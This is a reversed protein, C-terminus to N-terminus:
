LSSATIYRSLTTIGVSLLSFKGRLMDHACGSVVALAPPYALRFASFSRAFLETLLTRNTAVRTLDSPRLDFASLLGFGSSGEAEPKPRRIESSPRREARPSRAESKLAVRGM